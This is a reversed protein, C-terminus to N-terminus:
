RFGGIWPETAWSWSEVKSDSEGLAPVASGLCKRVDTRATGLREEAELAEIRRDGNSEGVSPTVWLRSLQPDHSNLQM